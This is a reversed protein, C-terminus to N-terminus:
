NVSYIFWKPAAGFKPPVKSSECCMGIFQRVQHPPRSNYHWQRMKCLVLDSARRCECAHAPSTQIGTWHVKMLILIMSFLNWGRVGLEAELKTFWRGQGPIIYSPTSGMTSDGFPPPRQERGVLSPQDPEGWPSSSSFLPRIHTDTPLTLTTGTLTQHRESLYKHIFVSDFFIVTVMSGVQLGACKNVWVQSRYCLLFHLLFFVWTM